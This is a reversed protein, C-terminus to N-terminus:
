PSRRDQRPFPGVLVLWALGRGQHLDGGLHRFSSSSARCCISSDRASKSSVRSPPGAPLPPSASPLPKCTDSRCGACRGSRGQESPCRWWPRRPGANSSAAATVFRRIVSSGGQAALDLRRSTGSAVTKLVSCMGWVPLNDTARTQAPVILSPKVKVPEPPSVSRTEPMDRRVPWACSFIDAALAPSTTAKPRISFTCVPM